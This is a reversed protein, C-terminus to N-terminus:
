IDIETRPFTTEGHFRQTAFRTLSVIREPSIHERPRFQWHPAPEYFRVAFVFPGGMVIADELHAAFHTHPRFGERMIAEAILITQTGHWCLHVDDSKGGKISKLSPRKAPSSPPPSATM